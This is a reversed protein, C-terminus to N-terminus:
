RPEDQWHLFRGCSECTSLGAASRLEQLAQPRIAMRCGGCIGGGVVPVVAVGGRAQIDALVRDLALTNGHIDALIAIKM